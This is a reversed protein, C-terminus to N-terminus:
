IQGIGALNIFGNLISAKSQISDETSSGGICWQFTITLHRRWVPNRHFVVTGSISDGPHVTVPTDLMFLTQKWHTPASHPGSDLILAAADRELGHFQVSFWATFGHFTGAKEVKFSFEGQLRELDSVQLTHMNLTIVDTPTCLCDQPQIEHNFKPKSFFEKRALPQLCSFDLGYPNEWFGVKESFNHFAECPVLTISALSPWMMGGEKLWCDRAHLVSEVMYEFLLCNGMWESVLVDVKEPLTLEEVRGQFVTVVDGCGNDKVLKTTYEAVTSAEVAYVAAPEALSACFLSIIGTGCGLDLVVKGKLTAPNTLIVQRYVETRPKDSLMELHLKLTGYSGFYEEDQWADEEQVVNEAEAQLYSSPVYGFSERLEAWWWDSSTRKHVLLKDGVSFRLQNSGYASFDAVGFFEETTDVGNDGREQLM